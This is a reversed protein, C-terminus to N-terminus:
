NRTGEVYLMTVTMRLESQAAATENLRAEIGAFIADEDTPEIVSRWGDLFGM